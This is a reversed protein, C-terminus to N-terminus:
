IKEIILKVKQPTVGKYWKEEPLILVMPGNGCKGLCSSKQINVEPLTFNLFASLVQESGQKKCSRNHCILVTKYNNENM